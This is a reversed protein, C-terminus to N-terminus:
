GHDTVDVDFGSANPSFSVERIITGNENKVKSALSLEEFSQVETGLIHNLMAVLNKPGAGASMEFSDKGTGQKYIIGDVGSVLELWDKLSDGYYNIATPDPYKQIFKLFKENLKMTPPLMAIDLKGTEPNYLLSNMISRVTAEACYAFSKESSTYTAFPAQLFAIDGAVFHALYATTDEVGRANKSITHTSNQGLLAKGIEELEETTYYESEFPNNLLASYYNKIAYSKGLAKQKQDKVSLFTMFIKTLDNINKEKETDTKAEKNLAELLKVFDKIKTKFESLSYKKKQNPDDTPLNVKKDWDDSWTTIFAPDKLLKVLNGIGEKGTTLAEMIKAIVAGELGCFPNSEQVTSRLKDDLVDLTSRAIKNLNTTTDFVRITRGPRTPDAQTAFTGYMHLQVDTESIVGLLASKSLEKDVPLSTNNKTISSITHKLAYASDITTGAHTVTSISLFIVSFIVCRIKEFM